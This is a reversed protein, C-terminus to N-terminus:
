APPREPDVQYGEHGRTWPLLQGARRKAVKGRRVRETILTRAYEAVAGRIQLLLLQDHPDTSRPREVVEVRVGHRECEEGLLVQQLDKRALRDPATIVVVAVEALAM